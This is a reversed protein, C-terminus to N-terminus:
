QLYKQIYMYRKYFNEELDLSFMPVEVVNYGYREYIAKTAYSDKYRDELTAPMAKGNNKYDLDFQDIPMFIFIYDYKYENIKSIIQEPIVTGHTEAFRLMFPLGRDYWCIKNEGNLFQQVGNKLFIEFFTKWSCKNNPPYVARKKYENVTGQVLESFVTYGDITAICPCNPSIVSINKRIDCLYNLSLFTTKGSGCGGDIVIRM